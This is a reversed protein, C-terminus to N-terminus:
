VKTKKTSEDTPPFADVRAPLGAFRLAWALHEDCVKFVKGQDNSLKWLVRAGCSAGTPSQYYCLNVTPKDKNM